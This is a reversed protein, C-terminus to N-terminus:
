AYLGGRERGRCTRSLQLAHSRGCRTALRCRRDTDIAKAPPYLVPTVTLQPSLTLDDTMSAYSGITENGASPALIIFRLPGKKETTDVM